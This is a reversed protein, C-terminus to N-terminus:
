KYTHEHRLHEKHKNIEQILRDTVIDLAEEPREATGEAALAGSPLLLVSHVEFMPPRRRVSLRLHRQDEPFRKLRREIRQACRAWHERVEAKIGTPCDHFILHEAM